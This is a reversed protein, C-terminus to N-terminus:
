LHKRYTMRTAQTRRSNGVNRSSQCWGHRGTEGSQRGGRECAPRRPGAAPPGSLGCRRVGMLDYDLCPHSRWGLEKWTTRRVVGLSLDRRKRPHLIAQEARRWGKEQAVRRVQEEGKVLGERWRVRRGGARAENREMAERENVIVKGLRMESRLQDVAFAMEFGGRQFKLLIEKM